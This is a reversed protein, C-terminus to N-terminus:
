GKDTQFSKLLPCKKRLHCPIIRDIPFDINTYMKPGFLNDTFKGEEYSIRGLKKHPEKGPNSNPEAKNMQRVM